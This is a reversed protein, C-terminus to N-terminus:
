SKLITLIQHRLNVSIFFQTVLAVLLIAGVSFLGLTPTPRTGVRRAKM